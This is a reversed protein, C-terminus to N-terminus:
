ISRYWWSMMIIKVKCFVGGFTVKTVDGAVVDVECTVMSVGRGLVIVHGTTNVGARKRVSQKDSTEEIISYSEYPTGRRLRKRWHQIYLDHRM